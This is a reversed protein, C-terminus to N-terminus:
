WNVKDANTFCELIEFFGSMCVNSYNVAAQM